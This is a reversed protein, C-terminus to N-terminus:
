VGEGIPRPKSLAATELARRVGRQLHGHKRRHGLALTLIAVAAFTPNRRLQSLGSRLDQTLTDMLPLGRQERYDEKVQDVGGFARLAAYRAEEPTMGRRINEEEVLMELHARLEEQLDEELRKRRFLVGCRALLVRVWSM